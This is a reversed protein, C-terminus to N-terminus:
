ATRTSVACAQVQDTQWLQGLKGIFHAFAQPALMHSGEIGHMTIDQGICKEWAGAANWSVLHDADAVFVHVPFTVPLHPPTFEYTECIRFDNRLVPEFLAMAERDRLIEDPTGGIEVLSQHFDESTMSHIPERGELVRDPANSGLIYFADPLPLRRLSLHRLLEYAVVAGMSYGFLAYPAQLLGTIENAVHDALSQIDHPLPKTFHAERGPLAVPVVDFISESNQVWSRFLSPGAGAPPLCILRPRLTM